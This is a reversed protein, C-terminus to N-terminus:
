FNHSVDEWTVGRAVRVCPLIESPHPAGPEEGASRVGRAEWVLAKWEGRPESKVLPAGQRSLIRLQWTAPAIVVFQAHEIPMAGNQFYFAEGAYGGPLQERSPRARVYEYEVMDGPGLGTMSIATKQTLLEPEVVTGDAKITRLEIIEAGPPIRVEGWRQVGRKDYAKGVIHVRERTSGDPAIHVIAQDLLMAASSGPHPLDYNRKDALVQELRVVYPEIPDRTGALIAARRQSLNEPEHRAAQMLVANASSANGQLFQAEALDRWLPGTDDGWTLLQTLEREADAWKGRGLHLLALERRYSENMPSRQAAAALAADAEEFRHAHRLFRALYPGDAHRKQLTHSAAEYQAFLDASRFYELAARFPSSQEPALTIAESLADEAEKYWKQSLYADFLAEHWKPWAPAARAGKRLRAIAELPKGEERDLQALQYECAVASPAVDVAKQFCLRARQRRISEMVTMDNRLAQGLLYNVYACEPLSGAARKLLSKAAQYDGAQIALRSNLALLLPASPAARLAKSFYDGAPLRVEFTNPPPAGKLSPYSDFTTRTEVRLPRGTKDLLRLTFAGPRQQSTFKVTVKNWGERLEVGFYDTTGLWLRIRDRELVLHNNVFVKIPGASNIRLIASVDKPCNLFTLAYFTGGARGEPLRGRSGRPFVRERHFNMAQLPIDGRASAYIKQPADEIEPLFATDFGLYDFRGFPGAMLWDEIFGAEAHMADADGSRGEDIYINALTIRLHERLELGQIDSRRFLEEFCPTVLSNYGRVSGFLSEIRQAALQGFPGKPDLRLLDLSTRLLNEQEVRLAQAAGMFYLAAAPHEQLEAAQSLHRVAAALDNKHFLHLLGLEYHAAGEGPKKLVQALLAQLRGERKAPEPLDFWEARVPRLPTLGLLLGILLLRRLDRRM